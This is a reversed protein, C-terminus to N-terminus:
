RRLSTRRVFRIARIRILNEMYLLMQIQLLNSASLVAAQSIQLRLAIYLLTHM